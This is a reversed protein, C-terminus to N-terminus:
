DQNSAAAISPSPAGMKIPSFYNKRLKKGTRGEPLSGCGRSFRILKCHLSTRPGNAGGQLGDEIRKVRREDHHQFDPASEQWKKGRILPRGAM